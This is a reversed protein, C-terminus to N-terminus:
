YHVIRGCWSAVASLVKAGESTPQYVLASFYSLVTFASDGGKGSDTQDLFFQALNYCKILHQM